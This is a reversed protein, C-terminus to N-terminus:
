FNGQAAEALIQKDLTLDAVTGHLRENAKELQKLRRLRDGNM